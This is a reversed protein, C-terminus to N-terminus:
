LKLVEVVVRFYQNNAYDDIFTELVANPTELHLSSKVEPRVPDLPFAPVGTAYVSVSSKGEGDFSERKLSVTKTMNRSMFGSNYSFGEWREVFLIPYDVSELVLVDGNVVNM